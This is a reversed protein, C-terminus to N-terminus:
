GHIVWHWRGIVQGGSAIVQTVAGGIAGIAAVNTWMDQSVLQRAVLAQECPEQVIRQFADEEPFLRALM